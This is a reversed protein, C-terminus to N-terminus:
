STVMADHVVSLRLARDTSWLRLPGVLVPRAM